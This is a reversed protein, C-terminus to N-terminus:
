KHPILSDNEPMEKLTVTVSAVAARRTRNFTGESIFLRNM